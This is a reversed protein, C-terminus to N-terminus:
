NGGSLYKIEMNKCAIPMTDVATSVSYRLQVTDVTIPNSSSIGSLSVINNNLLAQPTITWNGNTGSTNYTWSTLQLPNSFTWRLTRVVDTAIGSVTYTWGTSTTAKYDNATSAGVCEITGFETNSSLNTVTVETGPPTPTASYLGKLGGGINLCKVVPYTITNTYPDSSTVETQTTIGGVWDIYFADENRPNGYYCENLYINGAFPQQINTTCADKGIISAQQNWRSGSGQRYYFVEHFTNGNDGSCEIGYSKGDSGWTRFRVIYKTDYDLYQTSVPHSGSDYTYSTVNDKIWSSGTGFSVRLLNRSGDNDVCFRLRNSGNTSLITGSTLGVSSPISFCIAIASTRKTGSLTNDFGPVITLYDNNSFGSCVNPGTINVTGTTTCNQTNVINIYRTKTGTQILKVM